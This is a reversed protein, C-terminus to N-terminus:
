WYFEDENAMLDEECSINGLFSWHVPFPPFYFEKLEKILAPGLTYIPPQDMILAALEYEDVVETANYYKIATNRISPTDAIINCSEYYDAVIKVTKQILNENLM